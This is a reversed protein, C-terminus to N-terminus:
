FWDLYRKVMTYYEGLQVYGSGTGYCVRDPQALQEQVAAYFSDEGYGDLRDMLYQQIPANSRIASCFLLEPLRFRTTFVAPSKLMGCTAPALKVVGCSDLHKMFCVCTIRRALTIVLDSDLCVRDSAFFHPEKVCSM